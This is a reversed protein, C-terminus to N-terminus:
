PRRYITCIHIFSIIIYLCLCLKTNCPRKSPWIESLGFNIYIIIGFLRNYHNYISKLLLHTNIDGLYTKVAGFRHFIRFCFFYGKHPHYIVDHYAFECKLTIQLEYFTWGSIVDATIINFNIKASPRWIRTCLKIEDCSSQVSLLSPFWCLHHM